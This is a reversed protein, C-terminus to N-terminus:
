NFSSLGEDVSEYTEFVSALQTIQMLDDIKKTLSCLKMSAQQGKAHSYAAVMEGLGTSDMFTVGGLDILIKKHGGAVLDKVMDRVTTDGSGLTISGALTLIQVGGKEYQKTTLKAM